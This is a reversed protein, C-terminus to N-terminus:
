RTGMIGMTVFAPSWVRSSHLCGDESNKAQRALFVPIYSRTRVARDRSDLNPGSPTGPDLSPGSVPDQAGGLALSEPINGTAYM